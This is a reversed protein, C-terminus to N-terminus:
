FLPALLEAIQQLYTQDTQDFNAYIDSDIDLVGVGYDNKMLPVVIESNSQSSCAIHGPFTHVDDVIITQQKAIAAGCVGKPIQIRTCAVPGQFPGLILENEKRLYFGVWFFNDMSYKLAACVNGLNAILDTEHSILSKIQPLLIQYKEAKTQNKIM